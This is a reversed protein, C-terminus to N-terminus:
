SFEPSSRALFCPHTSGTSRIQGIVGSDESRPGLEVPGAVVRSLARRARRDGLNAGQAFIVAASTIQLWAMDFPDGRSDFV